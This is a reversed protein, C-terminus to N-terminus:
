QVNVMNMSHKHTQVVSISPSVMNKLSKIISICHMKKVFAIMICIPCNGNKPLTNITAYKHPANVITIGNKNIKLYLIIYYWPLLLHKNSMLWTLVIAM